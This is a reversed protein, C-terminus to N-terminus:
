AGTLPDLLGRTLRRTIAQRVRYGPMRVLRPDKALRMAPGLLRRGWPVGRIVRYALAMLLPAQGHQGNFHVVRAHQCERRARVDYILRLQYNFEVGAAPSIRNRALWLNLVSQDGWRLHPGYRVTLRALEAYQERTRFRRPFVVVGANAPPSRWGALGEEELL